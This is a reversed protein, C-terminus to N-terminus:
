FQNLLWWIGSKVGAREVMQVGFEKGYMLSSKLFTTFGNKSVGSFENMFKSFTGDGINSWNGSAGYVVGLGFNFMSQLATLGGQKFM